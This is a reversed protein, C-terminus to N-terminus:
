VTALETNKESCRGTAFCCHANCNGDVDGLKTEVMKVSLGALLSLIRTSVALLVPKQVQTAPSIFFRMPNAEVDTCLSWLAERAVTGKSM